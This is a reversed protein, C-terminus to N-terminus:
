RVWTAERFGPCHQLQIVLDRGLVAGFANPAVGADAWNACRPSIAGSCHGCELCTRRTDQERDRIVLRDAVHEADAPLLGKAMFRELRSSFVGIEAENMADSYPWCWRDSDSPLTAQPQLAPDNSAEAMLWRILDDRSARIVERLTPTLRSAPTVKLARDLTLNIILGASQLFNAVEQVSEAM